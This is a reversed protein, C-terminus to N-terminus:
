RFDELGAQDVELKIQELYAKDVRQGNAEIRHKAPLAELSTIFALVQKIGSYFQEPVLVAAYAPNHRQLKDKIVALSEGTAARILACLQASAADEVFVAVALPMPRTNM